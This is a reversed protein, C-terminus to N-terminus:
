FFPGGVSLRPSVSVLSEVTDSSTQRTVSNQLAYAVRTSSASVAGPVGGFDRRHGKGHVASYRRLTVAKAAPARSLLAARGDPFEYGWVVTDGALAPGASAITNAVTEAAAPPAAALVCLGGCILGRLM